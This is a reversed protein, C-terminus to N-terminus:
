RPATAPSCCGCTRCRPAWAATTSTSSTRAARRGARDVARQRRPLRRAPAAHARRRRARLLPARRRAGAGRHQAVRRASGASHLRARAALRAARHRLTELDLAPRHASRRTRASRTSAASSAAWGNWRRGTESSRRAAAAGRSLRRLPLRRVRAAHTRALALPAVVPIERAALEAVFAHEELIAADTWRGPRYFKAVVPPRTRSASRTSAIRTAASRWCAATAACASATSRTSCAPRAHPSRTRTASLPGRVTARDISSRFRTSRAGCIGPRSAAIRSGRRLALERM